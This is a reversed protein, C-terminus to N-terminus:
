IKTKVRDNDAGILDYLENPESAINTDNVWIGNFNNRVYEKILERKDDMQISLIDVAIDQYHEFINLNHPSTYYESHEKRLNRLDKMTKIFKKKSIM